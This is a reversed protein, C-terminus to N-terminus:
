KKVHLTVTARRRLAGSEGNVTLTYRGTPTASSTQVTLTSSGSVTVSTPAFSASAGSPTGEVSFNVIGAFGGSPSISITYTTTKGKAVTRSSPAVTLSFDPSGVTVSVSSSRTTAGDNDTAVVTLTYSGAAVNSWTFSYYGNADVATVEGLKTSGQFFEVKAIAGDPDSAQAQLTVTAPAPFVANNTPNVLSVGPAQNSPTVVIAAQSQTSNNGAADFASVNYTYTTSSNLGTDSFTTMASTAIQQGDRYIKYGAVAVDDTSSTWSLNVQSRSIAQATLNTPTSPPTVDGSAVYVTVSATTNEGAGTATLTYTTTATPAVMTAGNTAVVGVGQDITVTTADTTTWSLTASQGSNITSPSVTFTASPGSRPGYSPTARGYEYAGMDPAAGIFGDNVNPLIAGGDIANCGAKLTMMQPPISAPAPAPFNFTEFCTGKSVQRGNRELGSGAAFSSLNAYGVGGYVFPSASSGWEFGDYDLNTRWDGTNTGFYWIQGGQSSIWLNNRAYAGFLHHDNCCSLSGWNVITNHLLVFRDTTRFKFPAEKNSVIQNRIIYWPAGNQPQFSIANHVANHIRNSWMRVNARGNDAEIGDDSTDFIDNGFIDVNTLPYSIADAVNTISNHAVTHGSTINLEIGEGAFSETSAPTDGVITNDAIYWDKGGQQLYISYHNNFFGCRKIVVNEPAAISFTAYAQNRVTLGELWIHSAAIDIGNMLVEGDGAGKWVLYNSATGPKDFRIRGGYNGAHLFFTDGPQAGAQAAAVGKFPNGPSGDGGGSGEIVHFTRGGTPPSPLRKTAVEVIRMEAGGDPDSLSLKVEYTTSPNLFLISGALMNAGNYDVRMLPLASKWTASGKVRYEVQVTANHNPDDSVDWEVGISYITSYSRIAGPTGAFVANPFGLMLISLSLLPLITKMKM